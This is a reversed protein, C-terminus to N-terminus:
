VYWKYESMTRMAEELNVQYERQTDKSYITLPVECYPCVGAKERGFGCTDCMFMYLGNM